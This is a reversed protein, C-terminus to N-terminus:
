DEERQELHTWANAVPDGADGREATGGGKDSGPEPVVSGTWEHEGPDQSSGTRASAEPDGADGGGAAGDETRGLRWYSVVLNMSQLTDPHEPGL